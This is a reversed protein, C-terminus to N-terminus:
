RNSARAERIWGGGLLRDGAYVVAAQGPAVARVPAAFRVRAVEGILEITAAAPQGRHRVQVGAELQEREGLDVMRRFDEVVIERVDLAEVEGVIARRQEPLVRSVDQPFSRWQDYAQLPISIFVGLVGWLAGTSVRM